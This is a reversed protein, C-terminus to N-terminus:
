AHQTRFIKGATKFWIGNYRNDIDFHYSSFVLFSGMRVDSSSVVGVEETDQIISQTLKVWYFVTILKKFGVFKPEKVSGIIIRKCKASNRRVANKCGSVIILIIM